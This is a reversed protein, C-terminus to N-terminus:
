PAITIAFRHFDTRLCANGFMDKFPSWEVDGALMCGWGVIAETLFQPPMEYRLTHAVLIRTIKRGYKDKLKRLSDRFVSPASEPFHAYSVGAVLADGAFLTGTPRDFAVVSDPSHGPCHVVDVERDGLDLTEFDGLLHPRVPAMSWSEIISRNPTPRPALLRDYLHFYQEDIEYFKAFQENMRLSYPEFWQLKAKTVARGLEAEGRHHAFVDTFLEDGGRHDPHSHTNLVVVEKSTLSATVSKIDFIGLGTDVLIARNRGEILYNNVYGPESILHIGNGLNRVAFWESNNNM